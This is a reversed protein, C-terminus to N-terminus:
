ELWVVIAVTLFFAAIIVFVSYILFSMYFVFGMDNLLIVQEPADKKYLLEVQKGKMKQNFASGTNSTVEYITSNLTKFEVQLQAALIEEDEFVLNTVTGKTKIYQSSKLFRRILTQISSIFGRLGFSIFFLSVLFFRFGQM